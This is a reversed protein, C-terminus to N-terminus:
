EEEVYQKWAPYVKINVAKDDKSMANVFNIIKTIIADDYKVKSIQLTFLPAFGKKKKGKGGKSLRVLIDTKIDKYEEGNELRKIIDKCKPGLDKNNSMEYLINYSAPLFKFKEKQVPPFHDAIGRLKSVTSQGLGREALAKAFQTKTGENKGYKEEAAKLLRVTEFIGEVSKHWVNAIREAARNIDDVDVNKASVEALTLGTGKSLGVLM